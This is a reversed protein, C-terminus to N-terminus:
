SDGRLPTGPNGRGAPRPQAAAQPRRATPGARSENYRAFCKGCMRNVCPTMVWANGQIHPFITPRVVFATRPALRTAVQGRTVPPRAVAARIGSYPDLSSGARPNKLPLWGRLGRGAPRPVRRPHAPPRRRTGRNVFIRCIRFNRFVCENGNMIRSAIPWSILHVCFRYPLYPMM